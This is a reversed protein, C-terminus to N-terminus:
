MITGYHVVNISKPNEECDQVTIIVETIEHALGLSLSDLALTGWCFCVGYNLTDRIWM